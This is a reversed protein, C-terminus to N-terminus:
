PRSRKLTQPRNAGLMLMEDKTRKLVMRIDARPFLLTSDNGRSEDQFRYGPGGSGSGTPDGGQIM